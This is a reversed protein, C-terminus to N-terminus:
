EKLKKVFVNELHTRVKELCDPCLDTFYCTEQKGSMHDNIHITIANSSAFVFGKSLHYEKGCVDCKRVFPNYDAVLCGYEGSGYRQKAVRMAAGKRKYEKYYVGYEYSKTKKDFRWYYIKFPNSM